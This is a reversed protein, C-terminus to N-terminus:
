RGRFERHAARAFGRRARHHRRVQPFDYSGDYPWYDFDNPAYAAGPPVCGLSPDPVYGPACTYIPAPPPVPPPTGRLVLGPGSSGSGPAEAASSSGRIVVPPAGAETLPQAAAVEAGLVLAALWLALHYRRAIM